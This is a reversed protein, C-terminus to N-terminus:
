GATAGFKNFVSQLDNFIRTTDGLFSNFVLYGVKKSGVSYVSDLVVPQERYSTAKLNVDVTSGDPKQFTFSGGDSNYVASSLFDVNGTTINTSGNIKTIKWGRRIGALGAPSEKEV